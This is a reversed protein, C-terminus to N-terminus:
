FLCQKTKVPWRKAIIDIFTPKARRRLFCLSTAQSFVLM